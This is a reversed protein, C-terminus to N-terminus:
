QGWQFNYNLKIKQLLLYLHWVACICRVRSYFRFSLFFPLMSLFPFTKIKKEWPEKHLGLPINVDGREARWMTQIETSARQLCTHTHTHTQRHMICCLMTDQIHTLSYRLKTDESSLQKQVNTFVNMSHIPLDTRLM